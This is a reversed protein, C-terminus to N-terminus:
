QTNNALSTLRSSLLNLKSMADDVDAGIKIFFENTEAM